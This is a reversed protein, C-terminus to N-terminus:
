TTNPSPCTKRVVAEAEEQTMRHRFDLYYHRCETCVYRLLWSDKWGICPSPDGARVIASKFGPPFVPERVWGVVVAMQQGCPCTAVGPEVITVGPDVGTCDEEDNLCDFDRLNM